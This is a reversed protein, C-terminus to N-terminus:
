CMPPPGRVGSAFLERASPVVLRGPITFAVAPRSPAVAGTGVFAAVRDAARLLLGILAAALLAVGIQVTVGVPVIPGQLLPHLPAGATVRELLEMIAFAAVQFGVVSGAIPGARGPDRHTLRGLFISAFAALALVLAADNALGLYTHGSDRLMSARAHSEPSVILYTLWHGTLVGGVAVGLTAVRRRANMGAITPKRGSLAQSPPDHIWSVNPM